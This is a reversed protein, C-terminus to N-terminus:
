SATTSTGDHVIQIGEDLGQEEEESEEVVQCVKMKIVAKKIIAHPKTVSKPKSTVTKMKAPKSKPKMTKSKSLQVGKFPQFATHVHPEMDRACSM